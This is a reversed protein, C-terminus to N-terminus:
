YNFCHYFKSFFFSPWMFFPHTRYVWQQYSKTEQQLKTEEYSHPPKCFSLFQKMVIHESVWLVEMSNTHTFKTIVSRCATRPQILALIFCISFKNPLFDNKLFFFFPVPSKRLEDFHTDAGDNGPISCILRAKLFTTWKNILSRQGGVDNQPSFLFIIFM